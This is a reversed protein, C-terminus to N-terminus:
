NSAFFVRWPAALLATEEQRGVALFLGIVKHDTSVLSKLLL